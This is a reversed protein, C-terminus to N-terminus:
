SVLEHCSLFSLLPKHTQALLVFSPHCVLPNESVSTHLFPWCNPKCYTHVVYSVFPLQSLWVNEQWSKDIIHFSLFFLSFSFLVVRAVAPVPSHSILSSLLPLNSFLSLNSDTMRRTLLGRCAGCTSLWQGSMEWHVCVWRCLVCVVCLCNRALHYMFMSSFM